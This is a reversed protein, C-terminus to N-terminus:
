QPKSTDLAPKPSATVSVTVVLEADAGLGLYTEHYPESFSKTILGPLEFKIGALRDGLAEAIKPLMLNPGM